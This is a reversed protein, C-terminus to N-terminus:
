QSRQALNLLSLDIGDMAYRAYLFDHISVLRDGDFDLAVFYAPTELSVGRDYVIMAARGDVIGAAYAWQKAAAYVSYYERVESKGQKRLKAVLDLKVDDALMARVTGFDGIKFGEVYATLRARMGDSLMPMSVDAPEKAFERM